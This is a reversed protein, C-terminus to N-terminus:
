WSRIKRLRRSIAGIEMSTSEWSIFAELITPPSNEAAPRASYSLPSMWPTPLGPLRGYEAHLDTQCDPYRCSYADPDLRWGVTISRPLEQTTVMSWMFEEKGVYPEAAAIASQKGSRAWDYITSNERLAQVKEETYYTSKTKGSKVAVTIEGTKTVGGLTVTARITASGVSVPTLAGSQDVTM